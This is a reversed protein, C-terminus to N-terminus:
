FIIGSIHNHLDSHFFFSALINPIEFDTVSRSNYNYLISWTLTTFTLTLSVPLLILSCLVGPSFPCADEWLNFLKTRVPKILWPILVQSLLIKKKRFPDSCSSLLLCVHHCRWSNSLEGFIGLCARPYQFPLM